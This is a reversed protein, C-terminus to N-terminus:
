KSLVNNLVEELATGFSVLVIMDGFTEKATKYDTIKMSHFTKDRVFGDSVFVGSIKIGFSEAYKIIKAAGNVMGYLVLPKKVTKLYNWLDQM